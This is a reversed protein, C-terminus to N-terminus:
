RRFVGGQWSRVIEAARLAEAQDYVQWSEASMCYKKRVNSNPRLLERCVPQAPSNAILNNADIVADPVVAASGSSAPGPAAALATAGTAAPETAVQANSACGAALLAALVVYAKGPSM